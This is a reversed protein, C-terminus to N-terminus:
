EGNFHYCEALESYGAGGGKHVEIQNNIREKLADVHSIVGILKGTANLRELADLAVELTNADLTGFGEDLFLSEIQTKHSVLNSLALALGLSVLFSEGGSLTKVDRITNAQWLDVVQLALLEENNRKLQYRQHLNAMEQNALHVLNDLTLGQVFTRFKNGDAAGIMTNLLLWYEAHEKRKQQEAIIGAQKKQNMKDNALASKETLLQDGVQENQKLFLSLKKDLEVLPLETVQLKLHSYRRETLTALKSKHNILAENLSTQQDQLDSMASETLMAQQLANQDTFDSEILKESFLQQQNQLQQQLEVAQAQLSTIQGTLENQQNVLQQYALLAQERHQEANEQATKIQELLKQQSSDGFGSIRQQKDIFLQESTNQLLVTLENLLTQSQSLQQKKLALNQQLAQRDKTLVDIQQKALEFESLRQQQEVLWLTPSVFLQTAYQEGLREVISQQQKIVQENEQKLLNLNAKIDAEISQVKQNSANVQQQQVALSQMQQQVKTQVKQLQENHQQLVSQIKGSEMQMKKLEILKLKLLSLSEENYDQQSITLWQSLLQQVKQQFERLENDFRTFQTREAKCRENTAAYEGRAIELQKEKDALRQETQSNDLPQYNDLAPHKLSGCLPCAQEPQIQQKLGALSFIIQEQKLLRKLDEVEQNLAQGKEKLRQLISTSQQHTNQLQTFVTNKDSMLSTHLSIQEALQIQQTVVQQENFLQTVKDNLQTIDSIQHEALLWKIQQQKDTFIQEDQLQKTQLQQLKGQESNQVQQQTNLVVNLKKEKNQLDLQTSQHLALSQVQHEVLPLSQQLQKIDQQASVKQELETLQQQNIQLQQKQECLLQQETNVQTVLSVSQQTQLVLAQDAQEIKLDLPVLEKNIASVKNESSAFVQDKTNSLDTLKLQQTNTQDTLHAAQQQKKDTEQKLKESQQTLSQLQDFSQKLLLAKEAFQLRQKDESFNAVSTQAQEFAQQQDTLQETLEKAGQYWRIALELEKISQENQNKKTQLLKLNQQLQDVQDESLLTLVQSQVSLMQLEAQVAKNQEFVQKSIECYIETGTLEELLEGREKASANLFAAFGGQALLMSKTFRSFDLGTLEIVQKLVDSVKSALITGDGEALEAHPAQLKGQASKRARSQGWFVRYKKGKVSFEVEAECDGTGRTMLENKSQTIKDLRPTQQYLALCIADLLTSKGAGTQGTIVFLGNDIFSQGQFDIKWHGKLSNLNKFRLSLIKM